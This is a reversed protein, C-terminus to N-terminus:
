IAFTGFGKASRLKLNAPMFKEVCRPCFCVEKTKQQENGGPISLRSIAESCFPCKGRTGDWDNMLKGGGLGAVAQIGVEYEDIAQSIFDSNKFRDINLRRLDNLLPSCTKLIAIRGESSSLTMVQAKKMLAGILESARFIFASQPDNLNLM